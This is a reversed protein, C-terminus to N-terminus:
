IVVERAFTEGGKGNLYIHIKKSEDCFAMFISDISSIGTKKLKLKFDEVNMGVLILNKDYLNGDSVIIVPLVGQTVKLQMDKPTVPSSEAKEIVSLQGNSEMIAYEVDSISPCGQIRLQEMLDTTTIRLRSLERINLKGKEILITPRGSIFNKFLESKTSLFSIFIQLFVLTFIAVLGNVLSAEASDIPIAALEAIMFVVVLQFPSMKSLESKGMIRVSFLLAAYMIFTRIAIILM